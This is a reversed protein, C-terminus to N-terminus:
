KDVWKFIDLVKITNREIKYIITYGKYIMDRYAENDFYISARYMKPNDLLLEFKFKLEKKFAISASTKDNAIFKMISKLSNKFQEEYVIKM